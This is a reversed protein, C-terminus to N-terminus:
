ARRHAGAGFGTRAPRDGLPRRACGAAGILWQRFAGSEAGHRARGRGIAEPIRTADVLEPEFAIRMQHPSVPRQRQKSIAGRHIATQLQHGRISPIVMLTSM